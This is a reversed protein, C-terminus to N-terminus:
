NFNEYNNIFIGMSAFAWFSRAWLEDRAVGSMVTGNNYNFPSLSRFESKMGLPESKRIKSMEPALNLSQCSRVCAIIHISRKVWSPHQRVWHKIRILFRLLVIISDLFNILYTQNISSTHNDCYSVELFEWSRTTLRVCDLHSVSQRAWAPGTWWSSNNM